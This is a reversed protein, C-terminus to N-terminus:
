AIVDKILKMERLYENKLTPSNIIDMLEAAYAGPVMGGDFYVAGRFVRIESNEHLIGHDTVYPKKFVYKIDESM